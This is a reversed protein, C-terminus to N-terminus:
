AIVQEWGTNNTGSSTKIWYAGAATYFVAPRTGTVVGNPNGSGFFVEQSGGGGGGGPGLSVLKQLSRQESDFPMADNDEPFFSPV